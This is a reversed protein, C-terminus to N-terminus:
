LVIRNLKDFSVTAKDLNPSPPFRSESTKVMSVTDPIYREPIVIKDPAGFLNDITSLGSDNKDLASRIVDPTNQGRPRLAQEM